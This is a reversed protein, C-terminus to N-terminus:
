KYKEEKYPVIVNGDAIQSLLGIPGPIKKACFNEWLPIPSIGLKQFKDLLKDADNPALQLNLLATDVSHVRRLQNSLELMTEKTDTKFSSQQIRGQIEDMVCFNVDDFCQSFHKLIREESEQMLLFLLETTELTKRLVPLMIQM